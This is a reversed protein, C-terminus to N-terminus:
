ELWQRKGSGQGFDWDLMSQDKSEIGLENEEHVSRECMFIATKVTTIRGAIDKKEYDRKRERSFTIKSENVNKFEM